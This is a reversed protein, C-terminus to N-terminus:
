DGTEALVRPEDDENGESRNRWNTYESDQETNEEAREEDLEAMEERADTVFPLLGLLTKNSVIGGLQTVVQALEPLNQPINSTFQVDIDRFDIDARNQLKLIGAILEIRRQLAKKFERQKRSCVQQLGILKYSIAVGSANGAFNEDTLDPVCAFKHIDRQLRTKVNEVYTDNLDKTLWEAGSDNGDTEIIKRRRFKKVEVDDYLHINKLILFADTFDALDDMTLSQALNYADVLTIVDEFDGRRQKNNAFEVVPVDGFYHPESNILKLAGGSYTYHRIERADYVDVFEDYSFQDLAYVRYRRVAFQINGELTADCILLMEESPVSAFRIQADADIYLIEVAEGTISAEEALELNHAAEDNYKFIELLPELEHEDESIARYTVPQGIFFGTSMSTIYSCFNSVLQNNIETNERPLKRYIDHSGTFYQKLKRKRRYDREHALLALQLDDLSLDRQNTQIRM